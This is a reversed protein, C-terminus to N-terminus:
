KGGSMLDTGMGTTILFPTLTIDMPPPLFNKGMSSLFLGSIFLNRKVMWWRVSLETLIRECCEDVILIRFMIIFDWNPTKQLSMLLSLWLISNFQGLHMLFRSLPDPAGLLPFDVRFSGSLSKNWSADQLRRPGTWVLFWLYQISVKIQWWLPHRRVSIVLSRDYLPSIEPRLLASCLNPTDNLFKYKSELFYFSNM